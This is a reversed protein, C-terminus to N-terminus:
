DIAAIVDGYEEYFAEFKIMTEKFFSFIASWDNKNQIKLGSRRVEIRDIIKGNELVFDEKITPIEGFSEALITQLRVLKELYKKRLNFDKQELDLVVLADKGEFQFKFSFDKIKTDYLMWKRRSYSAFAIWFEQSIKKYEVKSYM